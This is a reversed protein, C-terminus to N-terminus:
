NRGVWDARGTKGVETSLLERMGIAGGLLRFGNKVGRKRKCKENSGEPFGITRAEVYM